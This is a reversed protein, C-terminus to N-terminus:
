LALDNSFVIIGEQELVTTGEETGSWGILEALDQYTAGAYTTIDHVYVQLTATTNALADGGSLKLYDPIPLKKCKFQAVSYAHVNLKFVELKPNAFCHVWCHTKAEPLCLAECCICAQRPPYKKGGTNTQMRDQNVM